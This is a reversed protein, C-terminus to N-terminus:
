TLRKRQWISFLGGIVMIIAGLWIWRIFPKYYLRISWDDEAFPDGLALYLDRFISPHIAVKTMVMDRVPYIRKEPHLYAIHHQNKRIEFNARIGHYNTGKIGETSLFYFNYPGLNTSYGTKLRIEREQNLVSSLLIGIILIAFGIHAITMGTAIRYFQVTNLIIWISLSLCIIAIWDLQHSIVWLLSIASICSILMKKAIKRWPIIAISSEWHSYSVLGMFIMILFVQPLMVLNFYPAGVSISGFHLAELILPYLTGLLITLMAIFILTGNILLFMERSFFTIKQFQNISLSTSIRIVYVAFAATILIGLLVLLFLGRTPDNAFTHVSVLVGSRVLFTGLISLAFTIIILLVAWNKSADRKEALILIHILAIGALWPLLSANEVPDWFWFGGWGLVRYAWWSGLAIGLTLFTWAAIAFRRSLIAWTASLNNQILAAQTIAFAVSFGVYGIYLMPPHIIFGLDQLLPNLDHGTQLEHTSVFPNSTLLLFSLFCFSIIGLIALTLSFFIKNKEINIREEVPSLHFCLSFTVTWVNLILIWLLISGEHSGWLATLRYILPLNPHSNAAVYTITFDSNAFAITLLVYAILIYVCQGYAAPRAFALMIANDRRYGWLPLVAQLFSFFLAFLLAITGFLSLM